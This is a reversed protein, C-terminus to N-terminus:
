HSLSEGRHNQLQLALVATRRLLAAVWPAICARAFLHAWRWATHRGVRRPALPWQSVWAPAGISDTPSADTSLRQRRRSPPSQHMDALPRYKHTTGRLCSSSPSPPHHSPLWLPPSLTRSEERTVIGRIDLLLCESCVWRPVCRAVSATGVKPCSELVGIPSSERRPRRRRCVVLDRAPASHAARSAGGKPM